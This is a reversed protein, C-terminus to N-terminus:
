WFSPADGYLGHLVDCRFQPWNLYGGEGTAGHPRIPNFGGTIDFWSLGERRHPGWKEETWLSLWTVPDNTHIYLEKKFGTWSVPWVLSPSALCYVSIDINYASGGTRKETIWQLLFLVNMTILNGQSHCVIHVRKGRKVLDYLKALLAKSALNHRLAFERSYRYKSEEAENDDDSGGVAEMLRGQLVNIPTTYDRACQYLDALSNPMDSDDFGTANYIGVVRKQILNALMRAAYQHDTPSNDMGNVWLIERNRIIEAAYRSTITLEQGVLQSFRQFSEFSGIAGQAGQQSRRLNRNIRTRTDEIRRRGLGPTPQGATPAAVVLRPPPVLNEAFRPNDRYVRSEVMVRTTEPDPTYNTLDGDYTPVGNAVGM